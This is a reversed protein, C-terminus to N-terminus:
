VPGDKADAPPEVLTDDGSNVSKPTKKRVGDSAPAPLTENGALLAYSDQYWDSTPYNHGLVAASKVAEDRVGLALYVETLRHLAEEIHTTTQYQDVVTRFRNAAAVFKGKRQYYRGIAMERGALHDQALEAKLKADRGYTSDPFRRILEDFAKYALETMKQDRAVDSIQDYYSIGVLYHAYPVDKHGPHLDIFRRSADVAQDYERARYFAYAAMLQGRTAWQS